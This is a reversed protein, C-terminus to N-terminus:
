GDLFCKIGVINNLAVLFWPEYQVSVSVYGFAGDIVSSLDIVYLIDLRKILCDHLAWCLSRHGFQKCQSSLFFFVILCYSFSKLLQSKM